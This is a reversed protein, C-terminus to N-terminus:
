WKSREVRQPHEARLQRILVAGFFGDTDHRHPGCRLEKGSHEFEPHRALFTQVQDENEAPLVSCTGYILWGGPKVLTSAQALIQQQLAILESLRADDLQWRHEPHRRLVGMGSCPADVLVRDAQVKRLAPPLAGDTLVHTKVQVKARKARKSLEHLAGPRVDSAILHVGPRALALTKGGAGACYDVVTGTPEVLSALLQSGADQVEFVGRKFLPLSQLNVRQDLVVAREAHPHVHASIDHHALSKVLGAANTHRPNARLVVPARQNSAILFERADDEPFAAALQAAIAPHFGGYLAIRDTAEDLSSLAQAVSTDWDACPSFDVEGEFAEAAEAPTLGLTVLWGLWLADPQDTGLLHGIMSGHRVLAYIGDSLLRRDRSHLRRGHKRQVYGLTAGARNPASKAQTFADVALTRM